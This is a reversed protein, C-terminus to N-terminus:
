RVYKKRGVQVGAPLDKISSQDTGTDVLFKFNEKQPGVEFNVLPENQHQM